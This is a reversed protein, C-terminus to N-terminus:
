HCMYIDCVCIEATASAEEKDMHSVHQMVLVEQQLHKVRGGHRLARHVESPIYIIIGGKFLSIFTSKM